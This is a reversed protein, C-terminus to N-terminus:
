KTLICKQSLHHLLYIVTSGSERGRSVRQKQSQQLKSSNELVMVEDRTQIKMESNKSELSFESNWSSSLVERFIYIFKESTTLFNKVQKYWVFILLISFNYM